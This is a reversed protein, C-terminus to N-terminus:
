APILKHMRVGFKTPEHHWGWYSCKKMVQSFFLFSVTILAKLFFIFKKKFIKLNNQLM